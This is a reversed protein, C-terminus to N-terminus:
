DIPINYTNLISNRVIDDLNENEHIIYEYMVYWGHGNKALDDCTHGSINKDFEIAVRLGSEHTYQLIEVIRGHANREGRVRSDGARFNYIIRDGVRFTGSSNSFLKSTKGLKRKNTTM